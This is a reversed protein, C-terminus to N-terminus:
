DVGSQPVGPNEFGDAFIDESVVPGVTVSIEQVDKDDGALDFVRVTTNLPGSIGFDFTPAASIVLTGAEERLEVEGPTTVAIATNDSAATWFLTGEGANSVAVNASRTNQDLVLSTRDVSVVPEGPLEEPDPAAVSGADLPSLDVDDPTGDGDTDAMLPDTVFGDAGRQTEEGDDLNDSDSDMIQPRTGLVLERENSLGDGDLDLAADDTGVTLGNDTEWRDPMGDLDSDYLEIDPSLVAIEGFPRFSVPAGSNEQIEVVLLINEELTPDGNYDFQWQLSAEDAGGDAGDNATLTGSGAPLEAATTQTISDQESTVLLVASVNEVSQSGLNRVQATLTFSEPTASIFSDDTNDSTLILDTVMVAPAASTVGKESINGALLALTAVGTRYADLVALLRQREAIYLGDQPGSFELILVQSFHAKLKQLLDSYLVRLDLQTNLLDSFAGADEASAFPAGNQANVAATAAAAFDERLGLLSDVGNSGVLEIALPINDGQLADRLSALVSDLDAAASGVADALGKSVQGSKRQEGPHTSRATDTRYSKGAPLSAGGFAAKFGRELRGMEITYSSLGPLFGPSPFYVTVESEDGAIVGYVAILPVAITAGNSLYKTIDTFKKVARGQPGLLGILEAGFGGLADAIETSFATIAGATVLVDTGMQVNQRNFARRDSEFVEQNNAVWTEMLLRSSELKNRTVTTYSYPAPSDLLTNKSNKIATTVARKIAPKAVGGVGQTIVIAFMTEVIDKLLESALAADQPPVGAKLLALNALSYMGSSAKKIFEAYLSNKLDPNNEILEFMQERLAEDSPLNDFGPFGRGGLASVDLKGQIESQLDRAERLEKRSGDIFDDILDGVLNALGGLMTGLLQDAFKFGSVAMRETLVARNVGEIQAQTPTSGLAALYNLVLQETDKYNEPGLVSLEIALNQKKIVGDIPLLAIPYDISNRINPRMNLIRGDRFRVTDLMNSQTDREESSADTIFAAYYRPRFIRNGGVTERNYLALDYFLKSGEDAVLMDAPVSEMEILQGLVFADYDSDSEGQQQPRLFSQQPIVVVRAQEVNTGSDTNVPQTSDVVVELEGRPSDIFRTSPPGCDTTLIVSQGSQGAQSAPSTITYSANWVVQGHENIARPRGDAGNSGPNILALNELSGMLSEEPTAGTKLTIIDGERGIMRVTGDTNACFFAQDNANTVNTGSLTAEFVIQGSANASSRFGFNSFTVGPDADPVPGDSLAIPVVVNELRFVGVQGLNAENFNAFGLGVVKGDGTLYPETFQLDYPLQLRGPGPRIVLFEDDPTIPSEFEDVKALYAVQGRTNVSPMRFSYEIGSGANPDPVERAALSLATDRSYVYLARREEPGTLSASFFVRSEPNVLVDIQMNGFQNGFVFGPFGPAPQGEQFLLTLEGDYFWLSQDQATDPTDLRATFAAAGLTSFAKLQNASNDDLELFNLGTGPAPSNERAIDVLGGPDLHNESQQIWIVEDGTQRVGWVSALYGFEGQNSLLPEIFSPRGFDLPQPDMLPSPDGERIYLQLVGDREIYIAENFSSGVAGDLTARFAISGMDNITAFDFVRFTLGSTDPAIQSAYAVVRGPLPEASSVGALFSFFAAFVMPGFRGGPKRKAPVTRFFQRFPCRQIVGPASM